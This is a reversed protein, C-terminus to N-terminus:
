TLRRMFCSPHWQRPAESHSPIDLLDTIINRNFSLVFIWLLAERGRRASIKVCQRVRNVDFGIQNAPGAWPGGGSFGYKAWRAQRKDRCSRRLRPLKRRCPWFGAHGPATTS